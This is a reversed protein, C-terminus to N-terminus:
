EYETMATNGLDTLIRFRVEGLVPSYGILTSLDLQIIGDSTSNTNEVFKITISSGGPVWIESGLEQEFDIFTHNNIETTERIIWLRLLRVSRGGSAQLKLGVPTLAVNHSDISLEGTSETPLSQNYPQYPNLTSIYTVNVVGSSSVFRKPNVITTNYWREVPTITIWAYEYTGMGMEYNWLYVKCTEEPDDSDVYKGYFSFVLARSKNVEMMDVKFSYTAILAIYYPSSSETLNQYSGDPVGHTNSHSGSFVQGYQDDPRTGYGGFKPGYFCDSSNEKLVTTTLEIQSNLKDTMVLSMQQSVGNYWIFVNSFFFILIVISLISGIITAVGKRNKVNKKM